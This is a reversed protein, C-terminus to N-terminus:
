WLLSFYIYINAKIICYNGQIVLEILFQIYGYLSRLEILTLGLLAQRVNNYGSRRNLLKYQPIVLCVIHSM